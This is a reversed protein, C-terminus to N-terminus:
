VRIFINHLKEEKITTAPGHGPYVIIDDGLPILKKIISETIKKASGGPFDTRGVSGAFLTDGAILIKERRIYFSVSGPTHGPTHIVKIEIDGVKVINNDELYGNIKPAAKENLGLYESMEPFDEMLFLDDKHLFFETNIADQVERVGAIHDAHGHTNIIKEVKAGITKIEKLIKDAEAAADIIVAKKTKEDGLIYCNTELAGLVLTKLIM